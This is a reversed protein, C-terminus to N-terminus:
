FNIKETEYHNYGIEQMNAEQDILDAFQTASEYDSFWFVSGRKLMMYKISRGFKDDSLPKDDDSYPKSHYYSSNNQVVKSKLYRFTTTESISFAAVINDFNQIISDGTLKICNFETEKNNDIPPDIMEFSMVFLHGDAGIPIIHNQDLGEIALDAELRFSFGKVLLYSTQKYLTDQSEKRNNKKIGVSEASIFVDDYKRISGSDSILFHDIGEKEDYGDLIYAPKDNSSFSSQKIKAKEGNSKLDFSNPFFTENGYGIGVPSINSISIFDQKEKGYRFSSKGINEEAKTKDSIPIQDISLLKLYRLAGLITTQQPFKRSVQYYDMSLKSKNGDSKLRYRNEDSFFFKSVPRFDIKYRKKDM